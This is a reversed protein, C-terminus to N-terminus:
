PLNKHELVVCRSQFSKIQCAFIHEGEAWIPEQLHDNNLMYCVICTLNHEIIVEKHLCHCLNTCILKMRTLLSIDYAKVIISKNVHLENERCQLQTQSTINQSLFRLWNADCKKQGSM